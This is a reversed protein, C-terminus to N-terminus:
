EDEHEVAANSQLPVLRGEESDESSVTTARSRTSRTMPPNQASSRSFEALMSLDDEVALAARQEKHSVSSPPAPNAHKLASICTAYSTNAEPASLPNALMDLSQLSPSGPHACPM